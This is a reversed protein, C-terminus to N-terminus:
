ELGLRGSLPLDEVTMSNGRWVFGRGLWGAIWLAPLLLDRLVLAFLLAPRFPGALWGALALEAGYWVVAAVLVVGGPLVDNAVLFASGSLPFLGGMFIEPLFLGPFGLRRIRAWRVQRRWVESFTRRGLPHEFPMHALRVKLGARRVIKTAAVDEAMESGLMSFGGSEELIRGHWLMNKGQAFGRGFQEGALQWRAQYTNLFGCELEAWFGKPRVGVVPSSVLGTDAKWSGFMSQIYTKPLLVNSDAMLIWDHRAAKWGKVLNNVKPNGSDPDNGLLLRARRQPHAAILREVLPIAPDTRSAVCFIIEYAPHNLGFTSALTEDLNNELGCVPRLVTVGRDREDPLRAPPSWVRYLVSAISALHAALTVACFIAVLALLLADNM